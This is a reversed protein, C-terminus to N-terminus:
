PSVLSSASIHLFPIVMEGFFGLGFLAGIGLVLPLVFHVSLVWSTGDLPSEGFLMTVGIHSFSGFALLLFVAAVILPIVLHSSIMSHVITVETGFMAFPPLGVITVMGIAIFSALWVSRRSIGTVREVLTSSTLQHLQGASIFLVAKGIGHVLIQLLVAEVVLKSNGTAGLSLLGMNEISSYALLRKYDRQGMMLLAAVIISLLGLILLGNKFFSMGLAADSISKLRLLVSFAVSLLVGSMLASVPAPAQGHADPLWTHFPVLGAKAGFGLIMAAMALSTIPVPLRSADHALVSLNLAESSPVNVSVAGFYILLTGLLALSIGFSCIIVYKWAAEIAKSDGKIGVLFATSITTAEIAVWIIGLNNAIVVCTMATVFISFLSGYTRRQSFNLVGHEDEATLYGVSAWSALLSVSGVVILMWASVADLRILGGLYYTASGSIGFALVIGSVLIVLSALVQMWGFLLRWGFTAILLACILPAAVSVYLIVSNM